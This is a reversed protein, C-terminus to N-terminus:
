SGSFERFFRIEKLYLKSDRVLWVAEYSAWNGSGAFDFDPPKTKGNAPEGDSYDWLGLMPVESISYDRDGYELADRVQPTSVMVALLMAIKM